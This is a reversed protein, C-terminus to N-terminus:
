MCLSAGHIVNFFALLSWLVYFCLQINSQKSNIKIKKEVEFDWEKVMCDGEVSLGFFGAHHLLPTKLSFSIM